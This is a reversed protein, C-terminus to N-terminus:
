KRTLGAEFKLFWLLMGTRELGLRGRRCMRILRNLPKVSEARVHGAEGGSVRLEDGHDDAVQLSLPEEVLEPPVAECVNVCLYFVHVTKSGTFRLRAVRETGTLEM